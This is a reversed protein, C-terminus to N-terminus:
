RRLAEVQKLQSRRPIESNERFQNHVQAQPAQAQKHLVVDRSREWGIQDIKPGRQSREGNKIVVNVARKRVNVIKRVEGPEHDVGVLQAAREDRASKVQAM